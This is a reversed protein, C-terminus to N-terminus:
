AAVAEFYPMLRQMIHFAKEKREKEAERDPHCVGKVLRYEDETMFQRIGNRMTQYKRMERALRHEQEELKELRDPMSRQFEKYVELKFAEQLLQKERAVFRDFKQKASEQLTEVEARHETYQAEVTKGQKNAIATKCAARIRDPDNTARAAPDVADIAKRAKDAVQGSANPYMLGEEHAIVPWVKKPKKVDGEKSEHILKLAARQSEPKRQEILPLNRALTMLRSAAVNAHEKKEIGLVRTLNPLFEGHATVAKLDILMQGVKAAQLVSQHGMQEAKSWEERVLEWADM